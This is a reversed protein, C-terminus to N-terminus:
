RGCFRQFAGSARDCEEPPNLYGRQRGISKAKVRAFQGPRLLEDPNPFSAQVLIAGTTPDVERDVFDSKGKHGYDSGDTLILELDVAPDDQRTPM